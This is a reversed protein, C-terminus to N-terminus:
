REGGGNLVVRGAGSVFGCVGGFFVIWPPVFGHGLCWMGGGLCFFFFLGSVKM